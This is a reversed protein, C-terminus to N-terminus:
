DVSPFLAAILRTMSDPHFLILSRRVLGVLEGNKGDVGKLAEEVGEGWTRGGGVGMQGM